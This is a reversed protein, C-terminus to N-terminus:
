YELLRSFVLDFRSQLESTHEESRPAINEIVFQPKLYKKGWDQMQWVAKVYSDKNLAKYRDHGFLIFEGIRYDKQWKTPQEVLDSSRRTPFSYLYATDPIVHMIFQI